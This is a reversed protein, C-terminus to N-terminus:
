YVDRTGRRKILLSGRFFKSDSAFALTKEEHGKPQLKFRPDIDEIMSSAQMVHHLDKRNHFYQFNVQKMLEGFVTDECLNSPKQMEEQFVTLVHALERMESLTTASTRSTPAFNEPSANQLSYYIPHKSSEFTFNKPGMIIPNKKIGYTNMFVAQLTSLPLAEDDTLPEFGPLDGLAVKLVDKAVDLIFPNPRLNRKQQIVSLITDYYFQNRDSDTANWAFQMIYNKIFVWKKDNLIKNLIKESFFLICSRWDSDMIKSNIIEKFTNWHHYSSKAPGDNIKFKIQLQTHQENCGINPLLFVSRAGSSVTLISNPAYSRRHTTFFRGTPFFNGPGHIRKPTTIKNSTLDTFFEFSKELILSFPASTSGYGLHEFIEKPAKESTLRYEGGDVKPLLPSTTDSNIAGYPYYALFLPLEDGPDVEDVLKAFVPAVKAVRERVGQWNTKVLGRRNDQETFM